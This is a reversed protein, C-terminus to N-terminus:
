TGGQLIKMVGFWGICQGSIDKMASAKCRVNYITGSERNVVHYTSEFDRKNRIAMDWEDIVRKQEDIHIINEWGRGCIEEFPRGAIKQYNKNVWVCNGHADTQFVPIAAESLIAKERHEMLVQRKEIRDIADILSSGGNRSFNKVVLQMSEMTGVITQLKKYIKRSFTYIVVAATLFAAIQATWETLTSTSIDM